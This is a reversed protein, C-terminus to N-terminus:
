HTYEQGSKNYAALMAADAQKFYANDGNKNCITVM